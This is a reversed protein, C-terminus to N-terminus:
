RGKEDCINKGTKERIEKNELGGQPSYDTIIALYM